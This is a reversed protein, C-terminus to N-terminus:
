LNSKSKLFALFSSLTTDSKGPSHHYVYVSQIENFDTVNLAVIDKEGADQLARRSGLTLGMGAEVYRLICQRDNSEIAVDPIFGCRKGTNELLQWMRGDRQSMIFSQEKLQRFVLTEGALPSNKSAKVCIQEVSLLFRERDIYKDSQEDIILDFDNFDSVSADHCVRFHVHPFQKKYQIILDTIWNRRAKILICLQANEQTDETVATITQNLKEFIERLAGAFYYGKENLAIRNSSRDFLKVGLESELRKVSASVSSAPVMYKKATEAFNENQASEYFYQLQLLEM